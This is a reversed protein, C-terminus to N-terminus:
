TGALSASDLDALWGLRANPREPLEILPINQSRIQDRVGALFWYEEAATTDILLAQPHM